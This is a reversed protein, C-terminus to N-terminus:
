DVFQENEEICLILSCHSSSVEARCVSNSEKAARRLVWGHEGAMDDDAGCKKYARVKTMVPADGHRAWRGKGSTGSDSVFGPLMSRHRVVRSGM